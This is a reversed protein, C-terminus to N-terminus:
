NYVSSKYNFEADIEDGPNEPLDEEDAKENLLNDINGALLSM